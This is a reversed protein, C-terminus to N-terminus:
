LQTIRFDVLRPPGTDHTLNLARWCSIRLTQPKLNVPEHNLSSPKPYRPRSPPSRTQRSPQTRCGGPPNPAAPARPYGRGFIWSCRTHSTRTDFFRRTSPHAGGVTFASAYNLVLIQDATPAYSIEIEVQTCIEIESESLPGSLASWKNRWLHGPPNTLEM